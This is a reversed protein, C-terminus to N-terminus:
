VRKIYEYHSNGNADPAALITVEYGIPEDDKYVVDGRESITGNPIVIRKVAGDTLVMDIAWVRAVPNANNAKVTIGSTLTGTVNSAGYVEKLVDLNLAEIFTFKWTDSTAGRVSLVVDGGWAAIDNTDTSYANTVGDESVYGLNSFAADLTTTADSPMQTSTITTPAVSIAGGIKPKGASVNSATAM